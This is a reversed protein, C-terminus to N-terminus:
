CKEPKPIKLTEVALYYKGYPFFFVVLGLICDTTGWNQLLVDNSVLKEGAFIFTFGADTFKFQLSQWCQFNRLTWFSM